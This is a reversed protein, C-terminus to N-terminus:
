FWGLLGGGRSLEKECSKYQAGFREARTKVQSAVRKLWAKGDYSRNRYGTWGEHYNLYQGYGDWKSIGNLRQTKSIYWGMFDMADGFDDRSSLWSGAERQYDSWTEDKAQAYGYASSVRGWPIFGLFYYRPPLADYRFSSEQYMMAMPVQPPVGWKDRVKVAAKHWDPKERFIACLNEPDAPPTTACGALLLLPLAYFLGRM